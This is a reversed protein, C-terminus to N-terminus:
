KISEIKVETFGQKHGHTRMYNKRKKFKVVRIKKYRGHRKITGTVKIKSTKSTALETNKEDFAMLVEGFSIKAGEPSSIQDIRILDGEAVRYQQCGNKIIAYMTTSEFFM